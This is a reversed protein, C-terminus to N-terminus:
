YDPHPTSSLKNLLRQTVYTRYQHQSGLQYARDVNGPKVAYEVNFVPIGKNQWLALDNILKESDLPDVPFDGEEGGNDPDGSGDYWIDEQAIADFLRTYGTDNGLEPANQAILLFGPKRGRAYGALEGIFATLEKRVDLGEKQAQDLVPAFEYIMLWDLYIGDYGDDIIRGIYHKMITKWEPSWFKVGYSDNWGDPDPDLLWEPNGTEWGAQWYYRYGEAQGVDIYCVVIKKGGSSNLSNRIRSVDAQTEYGESGKLSRQQDIVLLDYHSSCLSGISEPLDLADIQYAWFDVKSLPGATNVVEGEDGTCSLFFVIMFLLSLRRKITMHDPAFTLHRIFSIDDASFYRGYIVKTKSNM